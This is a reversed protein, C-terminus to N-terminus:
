VEAVKMMQDVEGKLAEMNQRWLQPGISVRAVPLKVVKEWGLSGPQVALMGRFAESMKKIEEETIKWKGVGWVFVTTAGAELFKKGREIVDEIGGGFGLVDTRANVVFDPCGAGRAAKVVERVRKVATEVPWVKKNVNDYDEM